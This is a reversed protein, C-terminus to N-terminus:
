GNPASSQRVVLSPELIVHKEELEDGNLLTTLMKVLRSGIEYIPQHITTLPPNFHAAMPIDDFGVVAVDKGVTLGADRIANMAGFAMLDSCVLVADPPSALALLEHMAMYGGQQTLDGEVLLRPDLPLGHDKLAAKYGELRHRACVLESPMKIFGIRRRGSAILHKMGEYVGAKGDVDVFPFDWERDSRGFAVFPFDEKILFALRADNHRTDSVILGDVRGTKVLERYLEAEEQAGGPCTSFLIHFGRNAAEDAIGSILELYFPDSLRRVRSSIVFGIVNTRRGQLGRAIVNPHYDLKAIAELVRRRTEPSVRRTNNIVYSVTATSVGALRAVDKITAL